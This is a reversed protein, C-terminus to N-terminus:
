TCGWAHTYLTGSSQVKGVLTMPDWCALLLDQAFCPLVKNAVVGDVTSADRTWAPLIVKLGAVPKWAAQRLLEAFRTVHKSPRRCHKAIAGQTRSSLVLRATTPHQMNSVVVIVSTFTTTIDTFIGLFFPLRSTRAARGADRRCDTAGGGGGGSCNNFTALMAVSFTASLTDARGASAKVAVACHVTVADRTSASLVVVVGVVAVFRAHNL